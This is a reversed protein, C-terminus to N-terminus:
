EGDSIFGCPASRFVAALDADRPGETFLWSRLSPVLAPSYRQLASSDVKESGRCM